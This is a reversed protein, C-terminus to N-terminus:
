LDIVVEPDNRAIREMYEQLIKIAETENIGQLGRQKKLSHVKNDKTIAILEIANEKPFAAARFGMLTDVSLYHMGTTSSEIKIFKGM